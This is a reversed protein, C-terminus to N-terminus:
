LVVATVCSGEDVEIQLESRQRRAEGLMQGVKGRFKLKRRTNPSMGLSLAAKLDTRAGLTDKRIRSIKDLTNGFSPVRSRSPSDSEEDLCDDDSPTMKFVFRDDVEDCNSNKVFVKTGGM